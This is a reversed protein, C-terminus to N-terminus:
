QIIMWWMQITTHFPIGSRNWLIPILLPEVPSWGTPFMKTDASIWFWLCVELAPMSDQMNSLNWWAKFVQARKVAPVLIPQIEGRNWQKLQQLWTLFWGHTVRHSAVCFRCQFHVKLCFYLRIPAEMVLPDEAWCKSFGSILSSCKTVCKM